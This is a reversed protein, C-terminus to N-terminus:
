SGIPVDASALLMARRPRGSGTSARRVTQQKQGEEHNLRRVRVPEAMVEESLLRFDGCMWGGGGSSVLLEHGSHEGPERICHV